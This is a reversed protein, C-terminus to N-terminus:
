RKSRRKQLNQAEIKSSLEPHYFTLKLDNQFKADKKLFRKVLMEIKKKTPESSRNQIFFFLRFFSQLSLFSRFSFSSWLSLLIFVFFASLDFHLFPSTSLSIFVFPFSLDSRFSPFILVFPFILIFSLRVDHLM